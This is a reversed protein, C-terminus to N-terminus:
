AADQRPELALAKLADLDLGYDALIPLVQGPQLQKERLLLTATSALDGLFLIRGLGSLRGLMDSEGASDQERLATQVADSVGWHGLIKASLVNAHADILREFVVPRPTVSPAAQAFAEVLFGFIAIKGVNHCLGLFYAVFEDEGRQRALNRCAIACAMSQDWLHQGFMKFYIPKIRVLPRMLLTTILTRLGDEGVLMVAHEISSVPERGRRFWPTNALKLVDGALAPDSRIQAVLSANSYIGQDLEMMLRRVTAPLKPLADTSLDGRLRQTVRDLVYREVENLIVASEVRASGFLLSQFASTLAAHRWLGPAEAAGDRAPRPQQAPPAAPPAEPRRPEGFLWRWLTRLM